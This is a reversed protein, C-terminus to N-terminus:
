PPGSEPDVALRSCLTLLRADTSTTPIYIVHGFGDDGVIVTLEFWDPHRKCLEIPVDLVSLGLAHDLAELSDQSELIHFHVLDALPIDAFDALDELRSRIPPLLNAHATLSLFLDVSPADRLCHM